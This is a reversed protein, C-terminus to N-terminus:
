ENLLMTKSSSEMARQWASRRKQSSSVGSSCCFSSSSLSSASFMRFGGVSVQDRRGYILNWNKSMDDLTRRAFYWVTPLVHLFCNRRDSIVHVYKNWVAHINEIKKRFVSGHKEIKVVFEMLHKRRILMCWSKGLLFRWCFVLFDVTVFFWLFFM